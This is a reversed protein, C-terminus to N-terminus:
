GWQAKTMEMWGQLRARLLADGVAVTLVGFGLAVVTQRTPQPQIQAAAPQSYRVGTTVFSM